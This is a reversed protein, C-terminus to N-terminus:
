FMNLFYLSFSIFGKFFDFITNNSTGINNVPQMPAFELHGLGELISREVCLWAASSAAFRGAFEANNFTKDADKFSLSLSLAQL